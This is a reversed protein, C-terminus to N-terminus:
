ESLTRTNTEQMPWMLALGIAGHLMVYYAPALPAGFREILWASVLPAAGGALALTISYAFSMSTIRTRLPFIEVVMAGQLGLAMGLPVALLFQGFLFQWPAGYLMLWLAPYILIMTTVTLVLMLRRRGVGDSLWGGLPKAILVLVLSITNALLFSSGRGHLSKRREVVYTFTLYYAANTTAVIGFTRLMPLWDAVLSPLLPTRSSVAKLGEATEHLGRRLFWGAICLLVSGIFPIRWGWATVEDRSLSANVLWASGSGLIFGITVGAATSSSILGRTMPSSSETTYVMSGTFEGGVSFGQILRMVVLLLPAAIGISQYNPLLGLILTSGGMLAISLTLLARRGIRDGIMGLALGGVPRAFFGIAFVAFALLQQASASSQPFFQRGIDSAFYGYVAFDFWELVNGILGALATRLASPHGASVASALPSTAIVTL